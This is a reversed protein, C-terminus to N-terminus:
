SEKHIISMRGFVSLGCINYNCCQKIEEKFDKNKGLNLINTWCLFYSNGNESNGINKVENQDVAGYREL